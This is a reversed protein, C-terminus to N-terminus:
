GAPKLNELHMNMGSVLLKALGRKFRHISERKGLLDALETAGGPTNPLGSLSTRLPWMVTGVKMGHGQAFEKLVIFLQENNWDELTELIPVVQELVQKSSSLTSKSKDNAFLDVSYTPLDGLFSVMEPIDTLKETRVQILHSIKVVALAQISEPYYPLVLAHFAEPTLARIHEGNLWTLKELSYAAPSKNIRKMDFAKTLGELTFFEQETGPNWGLLAVYNVIAEPLFGLKVLDEFTPDGKRKSLKTGDAKVILPLHIYEPVDWGFAKYLLNYKPASSLYEQGRAVHTIEMLHDDIVNAFNYTPFGDSKLLVQDDLQSNEFTINGFILDHYTTSGGEPIRQRIVPKIGSDMRAKVEEPTLNRCPDRTLDVLAEGEESHKEEKQCFCYFAAGNEVLETAYQKYIPLRQSQVYPGKGGDKDPGEDYVLGALALGHYIAQLTEPQNRSQDTDEIRLIFTGHDHKAILYAYLATRLNGIHMYGTPSPAFRTRITM